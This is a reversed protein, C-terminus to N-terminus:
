ELTVELHNVAFARMIQCDTVVFERDKYTVISQMPIPDGCCFMRCGATTTDLIGNAGRGRLSGNKIGFELRCKRTETDGYVPRGSGERIFPKITVVQTFFREIM